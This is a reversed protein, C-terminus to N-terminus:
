TDFIPLFMASCRNEVTCQCLKLVDNFLLERIEPHVAALVSFVASSDASHRSTTFMDRISSLKEVAFLDSETVIPPPLSPALPASSSAFHASFWRSLEIRRQQFPSERDDTLLHMTSDFRTRCVLRRQFESPLFLKKEEFTFELTLVM